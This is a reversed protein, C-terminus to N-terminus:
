VRRAASRNFNDSFILQIEPDSIASKLAIAGEKQANKLDHSNRLFLCFFDHFAINQEERNLCNKLKQFLGTSIQSSYRLSDPRGDRLWSM